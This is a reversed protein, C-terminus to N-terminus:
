TLLFEQVVMWGTAVQALALLLAVINFVGHVLPM